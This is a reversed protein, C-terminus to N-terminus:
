PYNALTSSSTNKTPWTGKVACVKGNGAITIKVIDKTNVPASNLKVSGDESDRVLLLVDKGQM